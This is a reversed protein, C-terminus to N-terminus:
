FEKMARNAHPNIRFDYKDLRLNPNYYPDGHELFETWRKQFLGRDSCFRESQKRKGYLYEKREELHRLEAYPNYVNLYGAKRIKMCLDVDEFAELFCEEFGGVEEFVSKRLLMCESSVASYNQLMQIRGFYGPEDCPEGQFAFGVIGKKEVIIGAHQITGDAYCLRGGVAGVDKRMACGLLEEFCDENVIELDCKLFLIYEGSTYKTAYNKSAAKNLVKNKCAVVKVKSYTEKLETYYGTKRAEADYNEVVIIEYNRYRSRKEIASICNKLDKTSGEDLIVISLLPNGQLIYKVRYMGKYITEEVNAAIGQRTLHAQVARKGAEFAYKKSEPSEATSDHHARWHYLIKPIHKVNQTVEICRLVYDYDQAGDFESNLFGVKEFIKRKVLFLHCFYNVSCLMDPNYDPKFHPMFYKKGVMDVKDEDTYIIDINVDKNLECVCEYLANPVLLDDHDSFAIFDGRAIKLAENTNESIQLPNKSYVVRIRKDMAEYRQLVATIPSNYGSGDSLCLEWNAYTQQTVSSILEELYVEPTKYLPVVISIKPEYDFRYSRQKDLDENNLLHSKRWRKYDCHRQMGRKIKKLVKLINFCENLKNM